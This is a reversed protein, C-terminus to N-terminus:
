KLLEDLKNVLDKNRLNVAVIEGSKSILFNQPIFTVGYLDKVKKSDLTSNWVLAEEEAAKVWKDKKTDISVMYIDFGMPHYEAYANKLKPMDARCPGCWSAWFDLLVYENNKVVDSLRIPNGELDNLDFDIFKNGAEVAMVREYTKKQDNIDKYTISTTDLQPLIINAQAVFYEMEFVNGFVDLMLGKYTIDDTEDFQKLVIETLSEKYYDSWERIMKQVEKLRDKKEQETFEQRYQKTIHAISDKYAKLIPYHNDINAIRDHYKSEPIESV